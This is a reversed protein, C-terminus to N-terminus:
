PVDRSWCSLSQSGNYGSHNHLGNYGSRTQIFFVFQELASM